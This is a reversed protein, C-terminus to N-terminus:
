FVYKVFLCPLGASSEGPEPYLCLAPEQLYDLVQPEMFHKTVISVSSGLSQSYDQTRIERM